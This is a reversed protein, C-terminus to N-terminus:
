INADSSDEGCGPWCVVLKRRIDRRLWRWPARRSYEALDINVTHDMVTIKFGLREFFERITERTFWRLHTADM